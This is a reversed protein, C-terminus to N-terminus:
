KGGNKVKEILRSTSAGEVMPATFVEPVMNHGVIEHPLYDGGKVLVDPKITEILRSPTDEDFSVVFDVMELAALLTMRSRLDNVPRGPGKLRSVSEDSNVAVVLKDGKAKAFQITALHGPHLIDFCGNTFVLKYQRDRLDQPHRFKAAIPDEQALLLHPSVPENHKNQVYIAGAEYAIEVAEPVTFDRGLAMALFAIFCDGAGVVSNVNSPKKKPAYKFIEGEILCNVGEGGMTIVVAKCGLKKQFYQAQGFWDRRGKSLRHAELVNPKFVTCGKWKEIDEAKPDVITPITTQDILPRFAHDPAIVDDFFGKNYDSFVFLDMQLLSGMIDEYCPEAHFNPPDEVDWRSLPFDGHYFRKKVPVQYDCHYCYKSNIGAQDYVQKAYDNVMAVLHADVNFHRFQYAVNAAGGPLAYRMDEKVSRMVPIPFEPSIRNVETYYYEDVMCDGFIAVGLRKLADRKLFEAIM